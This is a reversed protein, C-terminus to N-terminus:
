TIYIMSDYICRAYEQMICRDGKKTSMRVKTFCWCVVWAKTPFSVSGPHHGLDISHMSPRSQSWKRDKMSEPFTSSTSSQCLSFGRNIGGAAYMRSITYVALVIRWVSAPEVGLTLYCPSEKFSHDSFFVSHCCSLCRPLTVSYKWPLISLKM